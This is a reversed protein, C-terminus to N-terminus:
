SIDTIRLQWDTTGQYRNIMPTFVIKRTPQSEIEKKKRGLGFGVARYNAYKGRLTLQLHQRNAGITRCTLVSASPDVFVPRENEPGFPEMRQLFELTIKEMVEDVNCEVLMPGAAQYHLAELQRLEVAREFTETFGTMKDMEVSLGAAMAHGGYQAIHARSEHLCEVLDIGPVSRGSGKVRDRDEGAYGFVIAPKGHLEVLRSAVIGIIGLHFEGVVVISRRKRMEVEDLIHLAKELNEECLSKRKGNFDELKRALKAAAVINDSTLLHAAVEARGLRGAANIRPALLFSIDETTLARRALGANEILAQLGVVASDTLTEMGARVLIRNTGTLEVLDAVTGLAVFGLYDKMNPKAERKFFGRKEMVMRLAAAFYFAVGVGALKEEHFGCDEQSPNLVVCSPLPSVPLQHHDTVIVKGGMEMIEAVERYNAIGCDVTILLFPKGALRAAHLDRFVASNLGYGDTLRNPIHWHSEVGLAKFFNVLLATGSVGDVDYDGWIVIESGREFEALFLETAEAMNQMQMPNPLQELRPNLYDTIKEDDHLKLTSFIKQIIPPIGNNM